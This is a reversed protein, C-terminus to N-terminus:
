FCGSMSGIRFNEVRFAAWFARFLAVKTKEPKLIAPKETGAKSKSHLYFGFRRKKGRNQNKRKKRCNEYLNPTLELQQPCIIGGLALDIRREGSETVYIGLQPHEM